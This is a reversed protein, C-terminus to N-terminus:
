RGTPRRRKVELIGGTGSLWCVRQWEAAGIHHHCTISFLSARLTDIHLSLHFGWCLYKRTQLVRRRQCLQTIHTQVKWAVVTQAAYVPVVRTGASVAPSAASSPWANSPLPFTPLMTKSSPSARSPTGKLVAWPAGKDEKPLTSSAASRTGPRCHFVSTQRATM